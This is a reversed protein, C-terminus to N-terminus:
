VEERFQTICFCTNMLKTAKLDTKKSRKYEKSINNLSIM